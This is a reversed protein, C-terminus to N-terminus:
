QGYIINTDPVKVNSYIRSTSANAEKLFKARGFPMTHYVAWEPKENLIHSWEIDHQSKYGEVM